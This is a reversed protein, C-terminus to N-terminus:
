TDQIKRVEYRMGSEFRLIDGEITPQFITGGNVATLVLQDFWSGVRVTFWRSAGVGVSKVQIYEGVVLDMM